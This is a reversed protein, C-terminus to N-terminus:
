GNTTMLTIVQYQITQVGKKVEERVRSEAIENVKEDTAEIGAAKLETRVQRRFKERSVQVFPALHSLTISQGM